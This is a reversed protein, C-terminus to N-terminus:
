HYSGVLLEAIARHVTESSIKDVGACSYSFFLLYHHGQFDSLTMLIAAIRYDMPM